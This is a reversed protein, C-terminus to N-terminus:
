DHDVPLKILHSKQRFIIELLSRHRANSSILEEAIKTLQLADTRGGTLSLMRQSFWPKIDFLFTSSSIRLISFVVQCCSFMLPICCSLVLLIVRIQKVVKAFLHCRPQKFRRIESSGEM